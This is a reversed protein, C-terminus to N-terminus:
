DWSDLHYMFHTMTYSTCGTYLEILQAVYWKFSTRNYIDYCQLLTCAMWMKHYHMTQSTPGTVTRFGLLSAQSCEGMSHVTTM